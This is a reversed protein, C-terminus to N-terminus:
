FFYLNEIGVKENLLKVQQKESEIFLKELRLCHALESIDLKSGRM